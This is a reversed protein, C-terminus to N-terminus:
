GRTLPLGLIHQRFFWNYLAGPRASQVKALADIREVGLNIPALACVWGSRNLGQRCAVLVRGGARLEDAVLTAAAQAREIDGTAIGFADDTLPFIRYRPDGHLEAPDVDLCLVVLSFGSAAHPFDFFATGGIALGDTILSVAGTM